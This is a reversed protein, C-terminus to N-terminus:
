LSPSIRKMSVCTCVSLIREYVPRSVCGGVDEVDPSEPRRVPEQTPPPVPKKLVPKPAPETPIDQQIEAVRSAMAKVIDWVSRGTHTNRTHTHQTHTHTHTHAHTAHTHTHTHTHQTYNHSRARPPPPLVHNFFQM